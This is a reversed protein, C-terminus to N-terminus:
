SIVSPFLRSEMEYFGVNLIYRKSYLPFQLVGDSVWIRVKLTPNPNKAFRRHGIPYTLKRFVSGVNFDDFKTELAISCDAQFKSNPGAGFGRPDDIKLRGM